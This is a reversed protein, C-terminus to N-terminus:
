ATIIKINVSLKPMVTEKLTQSDRNKQKEVKRHFNGFNLKTGHLRKWIDTVVPKANYRALAFPISVLRINKGRAKESRELLAFPPAQVPATQVVATVTIGNNRSGKWPTSPVRHVFPVVPVNKAPSLSGSCALETPCCASFCSPLVARLSVASQFFSEHSLSWRALNM